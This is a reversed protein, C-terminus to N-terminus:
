AKSLGRLYGELRDMTQVQGVDAKFVKKVQDLEAPTGFVMTMTLLTNNGQKEFIVTATFKPSTLHEYVLKKNKVVETYVSENRYATGDPGHLILNWEGNPKVDMKSITSTFGDPGWWKSIHKPDTWVEFVLEVPASLFRSIRLERDSTEKM